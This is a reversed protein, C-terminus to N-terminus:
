AHQEGNVQKSYWDEYQVIRDEKKDAPVILLSNLLEKQESPNLKVFQDPTTLDSILPNDSDPEPEYVTKGDEEAVKLDILRNAEQITLGHIEEGVKYEEGNHRVRETAYIPM